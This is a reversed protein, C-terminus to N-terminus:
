ILYPSFIPFLVIAYIIIRPYNVLINKKLYFNYLGYNMIRCSIYFLLQVGSSNDNLFSESLM